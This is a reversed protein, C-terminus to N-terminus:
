NMIEHEKKNFIEELKKNGNDVIKQLEDKARFKEDEPMKGERENKQIENWVTERAARVKIRADELKDKALKVMQVRRETTLQPFIVRLGQEDAAVSLGLNAVTIAKEIAKIQSKDWPAVRLTKPDEVSISALNKVPLMQDYSEVTVGDLIAPAARGTHLGAYELALWEDVKKLEEKLKSFNHPM